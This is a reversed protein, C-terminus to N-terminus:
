SWLRSGRREDVVMGCEVVVYIYICGDMERKVGEGGM